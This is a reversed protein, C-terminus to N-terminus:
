EFKKRKKNLVETKLILRQETSVYADKHTQQRQKKYSETESNPKKKTLHSDKNNKKKFRLFLKIFIRSLM